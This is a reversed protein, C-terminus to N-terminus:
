GHAVAAPESRAGTVDVAQRVLALPLLRGAGANKLVGALELPRVGPDLAPDQAPPVVRGPPAIRTVVEGLDAEADYAAQGAASTPAGPIPLASVRSVLTPRPPQGFMSPTTSPSADIM